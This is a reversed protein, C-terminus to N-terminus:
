FPIDSDNDFPAAEEGGPAPEPGRQAAQAPGTPEPAGGQQPPGGERNRRGGLFEFSEGIVKLKRRKGSGDKAEWEDLKLRGEIFLPDGKRVYEKLVEARRGFMDIDVFTVEDQVEGAATKFRRNTAMGFQVVATGSPTYRLEPDRTLNGMLMVKNLSPM